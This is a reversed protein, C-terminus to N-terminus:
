RQIRAAQHRSSRLTRRAAKWGGLVTVADEIFLRLGEDQQASQYGYFARGAQMWWVVLEAALIAARERDAGRYDLETFPPMAM